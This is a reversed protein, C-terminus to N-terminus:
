ATEKLAKIKARYTTKIGELYERTWKRSTNDAELAEVAELGIRSILGGRYDVHGWTNCDKLGLHVNREDFRLHDASGRSRYHCADYAGGPQALAAATAFKGCCICGRGAALDRLRVYENFVKQAEAKLQPITKMGDLKRKTEARDARAAAAKQKALKALAIATGCAPSCWKVFPASPAFETRCEKIACKRKKTARQVADVRLLGAGATPSKAKIGTRRMPTKRTLTSGNM